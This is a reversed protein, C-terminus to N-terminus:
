VLTLRPHSGGRAAVLANWPPAGRAPAGPGTFPRSTKPSCARARGVVRIPPKTVGRSGDCRQACTQVLDWSDPRRRISGTASMRWSDTAFRSTDRRRM